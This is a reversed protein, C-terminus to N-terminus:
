DEINGYLAVFNNLKRTLCIVKEKYLFQYLKKSEEKRDICLDFANGKTRITCYINQNDLITKIKYIFCESGSTFKAEYRIRNESSNTICGDGDFYGLLFNTTFEINPNLILGKNPVINLVNIFYECLEKSHIACEMVNSNKRNYRKVIDGFYNSFNIMVEEDISFLSIKYVRKTPAYEINGDACIYGLWYQLEKKSLDYFKSLDKTNTRKIGNLDLFKYITDSSTSYKKKLEKLPMKNKYDTLLEKVVDETFKEKAKKNEM